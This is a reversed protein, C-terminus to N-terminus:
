QLNKYEELWSAWETSHAVGGGYTIGLLGLIANRAIDLDHATYRCKGVSNRYQYFHSVVDEMKGIAKIVAQTDYPPNQTKVDYSKYVDGREVWNKGFLQAIKFDSTVPAPAVWYDGFADKNDYCFVQWARGYIKDECTDIRFSRNRM